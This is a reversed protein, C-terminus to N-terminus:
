VTGYVQSSIKPKKSFRVCECEVVAGVRCPKERCRVGQQGAQIHPVRKCKNWCADREGGCHRAEGDQWEGTYERGQFGDVARIGAECGQLPPV